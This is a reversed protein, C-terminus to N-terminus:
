RLSSRVIRFLAVEYDRKWLERRYFRLFMLAGVVLSIV